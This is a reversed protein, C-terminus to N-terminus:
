SQGYFVDGSELNKRYSCGKSYLLNPHVCSGKNSCEVFRSCCGFSNTPSYADIHAFILDSLLVYLQEDYYSYQFTTSVGNCQRVFSISDAHEKFTFISTSRDGSSLGNPYAKEILSISTSTINNSIGYNHSIRLSDDPLSCKKCIDIFLENLRLSFFDNM